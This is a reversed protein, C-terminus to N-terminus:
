GGYDKVWQEVTHHAKSESDHLGLNVDQGEKNCGYAWWKDREFTDKNVTGVVSGDVIYARSYWRRRFNPVRTTRKMISREKWHCIGRDTDM